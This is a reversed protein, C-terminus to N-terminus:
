PASRADADVAADAAVAVPAVTAADAAVAVPAVTAADAAGAVPDGPEEPADAPIRAEFDRWIRSDNRCSYTRCVAPRQAYVTCGRTEPHNHVCAGDSRRRIQYPKGYDWQVVREDLDQRSLNFVFTCCRGKCLPLRAECDIAPLDALAYKDPTEDMRVHALQLARGAEEERARQLRRDFSGPDILGRALLEESLARVVATTEHVDGKTQMVMLHVFRQGLDLDTKLDDDSV